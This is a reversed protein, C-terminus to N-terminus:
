FNKALRVAYRACGAAQLESVLFGCDAVLAEDPGMLGVARAVLARNHARRGPDAEPARVLARPLALGRGGVGGGRGAIGVRIARGLNAGGPAKAGLACLAAWTRYVRGRM